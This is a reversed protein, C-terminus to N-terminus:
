KRRVSSTIGIVKVLFLNLVAHGLVFLCATKWEYLGTLILLALMYFIPYALMAFGFRFTSMFEPEPVKPKVLVRWLFILPLNLMYFLFRSAPKLFHPTRKNSPSKFSPAKALLANVKQPNTFDTRATELREVWLGYEEEAAINTTLQKLQQFVEEKLTNVRDQSSHEQVRIPAGYWVATSDGMSPASQYNQGVPVLHIDLKGNNDLAADILRTFGKSLPRVRRKLNHNAEPFLLIAGNEALINACAVFIAQNKALTDKGDRMRYIPLMQLFRFLPRFIPNKFVDSRTLFWPKRKCHTAILLVDMLANQHNSLFLVPKDEPVNELGVIDIKRYYFFLGASIWYKFFYYGFKKM